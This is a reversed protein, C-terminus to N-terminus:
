RPPPRPWGWVERIWRQMMTPRLDTHIKLWEHELMVSPTPRDQASVTLSIRIFDKVEDSWIVSGEDQLQPIEGRVIFSMLEIPNDLDDPYPFRGMALELLTLGSSWVDSRITYTQGQIREPAMYYGTGTFTGAVSDVLEGSVGFDCLKVVGKASLLVNSPKIDRHVIRRTHLYALGRFIGDALRSLVKEGIRRGADKMKKAIADLSGGECVEMLVNVESSSPTIYAGHFVIINPHTASMFSLERILQVPPTTRTPITKRAMIMNRRKERVKYVAGGAGEGLRSIDEFDDDTWDAGSFGHPVTRDDDKGSDPTRDQLQSGEIGMCLRHIDSRLRDESSQDHTVDCPVPPRVTVMNENENQDASPELGNTTSVNILPVISDQPDLPPMSRGNTAPIAISIKPTRPRPSASPIDLRISTRSRMNLPETSPLDASTSQPSPPPRAGVPRTPRTRADSHSAM